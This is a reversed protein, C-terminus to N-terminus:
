VRKNNKIDYFVVSNNEPLGSSGLPDTLEIVVRTIELWQEQSFDM